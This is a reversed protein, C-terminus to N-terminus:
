LKQSVYPALLKRVTADLLTDAFYELHM